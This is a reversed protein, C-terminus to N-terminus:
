NEISDEDWSSGHDPDGAHQDEGHAQGLKKSRIPISLQYQTWYRPLKRLM